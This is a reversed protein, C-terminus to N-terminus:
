STNFAWHGLEGGYCKCLGGFCVLLCVTPRTRLGTGIICESLAMEEDVHDGNAGVPASRVIYKM